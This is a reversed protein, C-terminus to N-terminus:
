CDRAVVLKGIHVIHLLSLVCCANLWKHIFTRAVRRVGGISVQWRLQSVSWLDRTGRVSRVPRLNLLIVILVLVAHVVVANVQGLHSLIPLGERYSEILISLLLSLFLFHLLKLLGELCSLSDHSRGTVSLAHLHHLDPSLSLSCSHPVLILWFSLVVILSTLHPLIRRCGTLM